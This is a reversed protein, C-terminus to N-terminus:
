DKSKIRAKRCTNGSLAFFGVSCRLLEGLERSQKMVDHRLGFLFVRDYFLLFSDDVLLTSNNFPFDSDNSLLVSDNFFPVCHNSRFLQNHTFVLKLDVIKILTCYSLGSSSRIPILETIGANIIVSACKIKKAVRKQTYLTFLSHLVVHNVLNMFNDRNM